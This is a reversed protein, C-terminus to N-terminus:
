LTMLVRDCQSLDLYIADLQPRSEAVFTVTLALYKGGRSTRRTVAQETLGPVHRGVISLILAEFDDARCGIVKLPFDCPFEFATTANPDM